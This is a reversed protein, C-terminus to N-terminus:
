HVVIAEAPLCFGYGCGLDFMNAAIRPRTTPDPPITLWLPALEM